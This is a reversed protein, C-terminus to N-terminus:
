EGTEYHTLVRAQGACECPLLEIEEPTEYDVQWMSNEEEQALVCAEVKSNAAVIAMGGGGRGYAKIAYVKM